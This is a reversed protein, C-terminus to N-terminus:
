NTINKGNKKGLPFFLSFKSGEGMKSEVTVKGKHDDMIHKVIALGLGAGGTKSIKENKVRFFPEFINSLDEESIGEGYDVVDIIAYDNEQRKSLEVNKNAHSYKISNM